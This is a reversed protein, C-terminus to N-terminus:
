LDMRSNIRSSTLARTIYKSGWLVVESMLVLGEWMLMSDPGFKGCSCQLLVAKGCTLMTVPGVRGCTVKVDPVLRGM